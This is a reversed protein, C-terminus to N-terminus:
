KPLPLISYKNYISNSNYYFKTFKGFLPSVQALFKHLNELLNRCEHTSLCYRCVHTSDTNAYLHIHTLMFKHSYTHRYKCILLYTRVLVFTYTVKVM